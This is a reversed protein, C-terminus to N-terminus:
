TVVHPCPNKRNQLRDRRQKAAAAPDPQSAPFNGLHLFVAHTLLQELTLDRERAEGEFLRCRRSDLQVDREVLAETEERELWFHPVPLDEAHAEIRDAYRDLAAEIAADADGGFRAEICSCAFTGLSVRVRREM